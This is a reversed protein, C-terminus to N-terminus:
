GVRQLEGEVKMKNPIKKALEFATPTTARGALRTLIHRALRMSVWVKKQNYLLYQLNNRTMGCVDAIDQLTLKQRDKIDFVARRFAKIEVRNSDIKVGDAAKLQEEYFEYTERPIWKRKKGYFLPGLAGESVELIRAIDCLRWQNKRRLADLEQRFQEISVADKARTEQALGLAYRASHDAIFRNWKGNRYTVPQGCGCACLPTTTAM